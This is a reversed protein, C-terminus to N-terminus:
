RADYADLVRKPVRGRDSVEFGNERAWVRVEDLDRRTATKRPSRSAPVRTANEVWPAFAAVMKEHSAPSLDLVYSVGDFTFEVHRVDKDSVEEGTVDDFFMTVIKRAMTEVKRLHIFVMLLGCLLPPTWIRLCGRVFLPPDHEVQYPLEEGPACVVVPAFCLPHCDFWFWADVGEDEGM